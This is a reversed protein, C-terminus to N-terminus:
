ESGSKDGDTMKVPKCLNSVTSSVHGCKRCVYQGDRAFQFLLDLNSAIDGKKWKCLNKKLLKKKGM